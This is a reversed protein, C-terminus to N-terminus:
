TETTKLPITVIATTGRGPLSDLILHGGLYAIRSQMNQLGIGNAATNVDFGKGNDELILSIEDDFRHLELNAKTAGAHKIMNTFLEQIVRYLVAEHAPEWRQQWSVQASIVLNGLGNIRAALDEVAKGLGHKLLMDPMMSHSVSRVERIADNVLGTTQELRQAPEVNKDSLGLQVAALL